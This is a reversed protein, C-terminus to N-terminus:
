DSPPAISKRSNSRAFHFATLGIATLLEVLSTSAMPPLLASSIGAHGPGITHNPQFSHKQARLMELLLVTPELCQHPVPSSGQTRISPTKGFGRDIAVQQSCALEGQRAAAPYELVAGGESQRAFGVLGYRKVQWLGRAVGDDIQYQRHALGSRDLDRGVARGFAAILLATELSVIGMGARRLGGVDLFTHVSYPGVLEGVEAAGFKSTLVQM